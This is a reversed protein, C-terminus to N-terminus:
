GTVNSIYVQVTGSINSLNITFNAQLNEPYLPPSISDTGGVAVSNSGSVSFSIQRMGSDWQEHFCTIVISDNPAKVQSKDVSFKWVTGIVDTNVSIDLPYFVPAPHVVIRQYGTEYGLGTLVENLYDMCATVRNLDTYNYAGKSLAQNFEALQEATWDALPVALLARLTELDAQSRDTVLTSFDFSM